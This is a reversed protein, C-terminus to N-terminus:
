PVSAHCTKHVVRDIKAPLRRCVISGALEAPLLLFSDPASAMVESHAVPAGPLAGLVSRCCCLAAAPAHRTGSLGQLAPCRLWVREPAWCIALPAAVQRRGPLRPVRWLRLGHGGPVRVQLVGPVPPAPRALLTGSVGHAHSCAKSCLGHCGRPSRGTPRWALISHQQTPQPLRSRMCATSHRGTLPSSAAACAASAGLGSIQPRVSAACSTRCVFVLASTLVCARACVQSYAVLRAERCYFRFHAHLYRDSRVADSLGAFAQAPFLHHRTLNVRVYPAPHLCRDSRM